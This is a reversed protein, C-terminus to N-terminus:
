IKHLDGRHVLLRRGAVHGRLKGAAHAERIVAIPLGLLQHARVLGVYVPEDAAGLLPGAAIPAIAQALAAAFGALDARQEERRALATSVPAPAPAGAAPQQEAERAERAARLAELDAQHYLTTLRGDLKVTRRRVNYRRLQRDSLGALRAAEAKPLYHEAPSPRSM